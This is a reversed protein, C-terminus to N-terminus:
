YIVLIRDTVQQQLPSLDIINGVYPSQIRWYLVGRTLNCVNGTPRNLNSMSDGFDTANGTSAITIFDIVNNQATPQDTGGAFVVLILNFMWWKCRKKYQTLDGFDTANGTSAITVFDITNITVLHLVM